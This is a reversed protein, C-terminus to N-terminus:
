LSKRMLIIPVSIGDEDPQSLDKIIKHGCKEYLPLGSATAGMEAAKFEETCAAAEGLQLLYRGVGKRTHDPHTYM